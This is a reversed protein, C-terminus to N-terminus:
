IPPRFVEATQRLFPPAGLDPESRRESTAPALIAVQGDAISGPTCVCHCASVGMCCNPPTTSDSAGAPVAQSATPTAHCHPAMGAMHVGANTAATAPTSFLMAAALQWLLALAIVSKLRPRSMRM